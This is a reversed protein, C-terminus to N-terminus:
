RMRETWLCECRTDICAREVSVACCSRFTSAAGADIALCQNSALAGLWTSACGAAVRKSGLGSVSSSIPSDLTRRIDYRTTRCLLRRLSVAVKPFWQLAGNVATQKRRRKVERRHLDAAAIRSHTPPAHPANRLARLLRPGDLTTLIPGDM